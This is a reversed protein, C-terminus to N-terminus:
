AAEAKKEANILKEFRKEWALYNGAAGLVLPSAAIAKLLIWNVVSGPFRLPRVFDMFLVVRDRDTDNWAEHMYTDDFILSKGEKWHRTEADVRIGCSLEPQPIILGLHYRLVGKYPGRHPPLHKGPALISFFATKMGPVQKLLRTTEPCRRCNKWAKFGYAYFFYTKWGDDQSLNKQDPSIDQFNPLDNRHRMVEDLETRISDLNNELMQTWAFGSPDLFPQEPVLSFRTLFKELQWLLLQLLKM